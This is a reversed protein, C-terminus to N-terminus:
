PKSGRRAKRRKHWAILAKRQKRRHSPRQWMNKSKVSLKSKHTATLPVGKSWTNVVSRMSRSTRAREKPDSYRRKGAVSMKARTETSIIRGKLARSLKAREEPKTFRRKGAVSLKLREKKNRFRKLMRVSTAKREVATAPRRFVAALRMKAKTEESVRRGKVAGGLGGSVMNYGNPIVTRMKKILAIEAKTVEQKTKYSRRVRFIFNEVGYKRIARSLVWPDGTSASYKHAVWRRKPFATFGIYYKGTKLNKIEYIFFKNM